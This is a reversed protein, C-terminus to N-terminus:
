LAVCSRVQNCSFRRPRCCVTRGAASSKMCPARGPCSVRSPRFRDNNRLVSSGAIGSSSSAPQGGSVEEGLGEEANESTACCVKEEDQGQETCTQSILSARLAKFESSKRPLTGLKQRDERFQPCDATCTERSTCERSLIAPLLLSFLLLSVPSPFLVMGATERTKVVAVTVAGHASGM